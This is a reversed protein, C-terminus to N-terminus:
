GAFHCEIDILSDISKAGLIPEYTVESGSISRSEGLFNILLKLAQSSKKVVEAVWDKAENGKNWKAWRYLVYSCKKHDLLTMNNAKLVIKKLNIEYFKTLEEERILFENPVRNARMEGIKM